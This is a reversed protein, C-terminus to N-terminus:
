SASNARREKIWTLVAMGVVMLITPVVWRTLPGRDAVGTLLLALVACVALMAAAARIVTM